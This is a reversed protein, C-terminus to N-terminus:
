GFGIVYGHTQLVAIHEDNRHGKSPMASLWQGAMQQQHLKIQVSTIIIDYTQLNATMDDSSSTQMATMMISWTM